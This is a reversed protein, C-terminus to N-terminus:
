SGKKGGKKAAAPKVDIATATMRYQITVTAGVKLDGTVKTAADRAIEWRDNGKKVVIMDGTLELVPGTVQYTKPTAAHAPLGLAGLLVAVLAFAGIWKRSM